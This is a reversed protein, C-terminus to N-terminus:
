GSASRKTADIALRMCSHTFRFPAMIPFHGAATAILRCIIQMHMGGPHSPSWNAGVYRHNRPHQPEIGSAWFFM